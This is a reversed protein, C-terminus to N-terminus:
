ASSQLSFFVRLLLIAPKITIFLSVLVNWPLIRPLPPKLLLLARNRSIRAIRWCMSSRSKAAMGASESMPCTRAATGPVLSARSATSSACIGCVASTSRFVAVQETFYSTLGVKSDHPTDANTRVKLTRVEDAWVMLKGFYGTLQAPITPIQGAFVKGASGDLTITDGVALDRRAAFGDSIMATREGGDIWRGQRVDADFFASDTAIGYVDM